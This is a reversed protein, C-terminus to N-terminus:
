ATAVASSRSTAAVTLGMAVVFMPAALLIALGPLGLSHGSSLSWAFTTNFVWPGVLRSVGFMSGMAGQMEGQHSPGVAKTALAQMGPIAIASLVTVGLGVWFTVGDAALGLICSGVAALGFGVLVAGREGIRKVVPGAALGQVLMAALALVMLVAGVDRPGWHYRYNTYLVLISNLPFSALQDLFYILLPGAARPRDWVFRLPGFPNARRFQFPARRDKPL